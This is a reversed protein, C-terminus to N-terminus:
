RKGAAAADLIAELWAADRCESFPTPDAPDDSRDALGREFWAVDHWEGHKYGAEPLLAAREFGFAEHFGVSEPNPLTVVGYASAFGQESLTELLAEYLASGVGVSRASRQVYVSLETVWRYASRKRLGGAYAYGVVSGDAEAVFWPYTEVTDAIRREIEEADPPVEEFTIATEEVYHRYISAIADADDVAVVRLDLTTM